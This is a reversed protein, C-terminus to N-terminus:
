HRRPPPKGDRALPHPLKAAMERAADVMRARAREFEEDTMKGDRHLQRLDSLTFGIGGGPEDSSKLWSRLTMVAFYGALLLAILVLSWVIVSGVGSEALPYPPNAGTSLM